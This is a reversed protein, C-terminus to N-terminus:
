MAEQSSGGQQGDAGTHHLDEEAGRPEAMHDQSRKLRKMRSGQSKGGVGLHSGVVLKSGPLSWTEM